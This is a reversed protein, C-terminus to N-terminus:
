AVLQPSVVAPNRGKDPDRLHAVVNNIMIKSAAVHSGPHMGREQRHIAQSVTTAESVPYSFYFVAIRRAGKCIIVHDYRNQNLSSSLVKIILRCALFLLHPSHLRPRM